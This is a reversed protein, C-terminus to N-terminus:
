FLRAANTKIQLQNIAPPCDEPHECYVKSAEATLAVLVCFLFTLNM